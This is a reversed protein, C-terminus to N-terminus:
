VPEQANGGAFRMARHVQSLGYCDAEVFQNAVRLGGQLKFSSQFFCRGRGGAFQFPEGGDEGFSEAGAAEEVAAGYGVGVPADAAKDAAQIEGAAVGVHPGAYQALDDPLQAGCLFRLWRPMCLTSSVAGM